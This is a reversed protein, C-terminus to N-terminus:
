FKFTGELVLRDKNGTTDRRWGVYLRQYVRYTVSWQQASDVFQGQGMDRNYSVFLRPLVEKRADV